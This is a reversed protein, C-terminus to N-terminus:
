DAESLAAHFEMWDDYANLEATNRVPTEAPLGLRELFPLRREDAMERGLIERNIAEVKEAPLEGVRQRVWAEFAFYTPKAETVYRIVEERDLGLRDLVIRDFGESVPHYGARLRGEAHLRLKAWLRPLQVVGLPGKAYVPIPPPLNRV